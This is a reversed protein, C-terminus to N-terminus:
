VPIIPTRWPALSSPCSAQALHQTLVTGEGSSLTYLHGAAAPHEACPAAIPPLRTSCLGHGRGQCLAGKLLARQSCLATSLPGQAHASKLM